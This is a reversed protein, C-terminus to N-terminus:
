RQLPANRLSERTRQLLGLIRPESPAEPSALRNLHLHVFSTCLDEISQSLSHEEQLRQLQKAVETIRRRREALADAIEDGFSFESLFREPTGVASRLKEKHKRYADGIDPSRANVQRGYWTARVDETLGLAALLDDISLALLTTEDHPWGNRKTSRLLKATSRSDAAFIVESAKMGEIGGFREIEQEYTDFVYKSFIGQELWCGAWEALHPFLRAALCEPTGHFRLRIHRDPDAYRIYFWSDALNTSIADEAFNLLAESIIDDEFQRPCYLKVFLWDSSGPPRMRALHFGNRSAIPECLQTVIPTEPAGRLVVSVVMESFYHGERDALWAQEFDPVVEQVIVSGGDHLRQVEARLEETEITQDLDLILRNDGASLCVHQPVDWEDRWKQLWSHFAQASDSSFAEKRIRWQAPRLVIRGMQVRPLFPFDEAPGWEFSSLLMRGDSSVESLFRVVASANYHTLMHGATFRVRRGTRVWRVYFLNQEVGVSLENLPIAREWDVGPTMDVVAEYARISPRIVVNAMREQRPLYVIEATIQEKAHVTEATAIQQLCERGGPGALDAFRGLNRGAAQAGLNPGIVLIFDGADMAAASRAGVQVNIDLSVPATERKPESTELRRILAEDLEVVRQRSRLCSCALDTLLHAREAAKAPAPGVNAHGRSGLPGLGRQPDLLELLPVERHGGYQNVFAQRYAALASFGGPYPSLRLLLDAAKATEDGIIRSITGQASLSLDAQIPIQKSGDTPVGAAELVTWFKPVKEEGTLHDWGAIADLVNQLKAAIEKAAEIGALKDRVYGSPDSFTLPPRLDSLLFTRQYLDTLLKEIKEPTATPTSQELAAALELYPVPTRALSIARRVVGTARISVPTGKQEHKHAATEHLFLRGGAEFATPNAFWSLHKRVDLLEEATVVLDMLWGMDPRTRSRSSASDVCLKTVQDFPVLAVGAFMGYPTPRTSMRILYRRLKARMRDADRKSLAGAQFRDVASLLSTSGVALAARVKADCLLAQECEGKSLSLYNEIPLLPARLLTFSIAEYLPETLASKSSKTSPIQASASKM